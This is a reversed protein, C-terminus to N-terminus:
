ATLGWKEVTEPRCVHRLAPVLTPRCAEYSFRERVHQAVITTRIREGTRRWTDCWSRMSLGLEHPSYVGWQSKDGFLASHGRMSAPVQQMTTKLTPVGLDTLLEGVAGFDSSIMPVGQALAWIHPIGLGEGYSPNVYCDLSGLWEIVERDTLATGTLLKIKPQKQSRPYDSDGFEKAAIEAIEAIIQEQFRRITLNGGFQSTRIHLEVPEDRTFMRFYARVLDHFGKREHWTGMTGFVFSERPATDLQDVPTFMSKWPGDCMPPRVYFVKSPDVGANTYARATFPSVGWLATLGPDNCVKAAHESASTSEPGAVYNVLARTMGLMGLDPPLSVILAEALGVADSLWKLLMDARDAPFQEVDVHAMRHPILSTPIKMADLLMSHLAIAHASYGQRSHCPFFHWLGHTDFGPAPPAVYSHSYGSGRFKQEILAIEDATRDVYGADPPANSESTDAM